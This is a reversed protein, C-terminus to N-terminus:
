GVGLRSALYKALANQEMLPPCEAEHIYIESLSAWCRQTDYILNNITERHYFHLTQDRRLRGQLELHREWIKEVRRQQEEIKYRAIRGNTDAHYINKIFNWVRQMHEWLDSIFTPAWDRTKLKYGQNEDHTEIFQIWEESTRGKM